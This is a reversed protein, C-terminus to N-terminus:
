VHRKGAPKVIHYRKVAAIFPIETIFFKRFRFRILIFSDAIAPFLRKLRNKYCFLPSKINIKERFLIIIYVLLFFLRKGYPVFGIPVGSLM